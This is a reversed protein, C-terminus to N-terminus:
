VLTEINNENVQTPNENPNRTPVENLYILDEQGRSNTDSPEGPIRRVNFRKKSQSSSEISSISSTRSSPLSLNQSGSLGRIKKRLKKVKENLSSVICVVHECMNQLEQLEVEINKRELESSSSMSSIRIFEGDAGYVQSGFYFLGM